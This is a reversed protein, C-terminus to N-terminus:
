LRRPNLGPQRTPPAPARASAAAARPAASAGATGSSPSLQQQSWHIVFSIVWCIEQPFHKCWRGASKEATAPLCGQSAASNKAVSSLEESSGKWLWHTDSRLQIELFHIAQSFLRSSVHTHLDIGARSWIEPLDQLIQSALIFCQYRAVALFNLIPVLALYPVCVGAAFCVSLCM